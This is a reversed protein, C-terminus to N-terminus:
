ALAEEKAKARAERERQREAAKWQRRKIKTAEIRCPDSCYHTLGAKMPNPYETGCHECIRTKPPSEEKRKKRDVKDRCSDSCYVHRPHHVEFSQHCLACERMEIEKVKPQYPTRNRERKAYCDQSCYKQNATRPNYNSKCVSCQRTSYYIQGTAANVSSGRHKRQRARAKERCVIDRAKQAERREVAKAAVQKWSANQEATKAKIASGYEGVELALVDRAMQESAEVDMHWVKRFMIAVPYEEDLDIM